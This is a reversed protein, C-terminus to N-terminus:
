GRRLRVFVRAWLPRRRLQAFGLGQQFHQHRCQQPHLTGTARDRRPNRERRCAGSVGAASHDEVARDLLAPVCRRGGAARQGRGRRSIEELLEPDFMDRDLRLNFYMVNDLMSGARNIEHVVRYKDSVAAVGPFTGWKYSQTPRDRIVKLHYSCEDFTFGLAVTGAVGPSRHFRKGSNLQAVIENLIAVKGVHNYGITSYHEGLPRRPMLSFLFVCTQYYLQTTVHLNALTSSFLDHIDATRYLVADAVIGAESNLLAVVFPLHQDNEFVWRGVVFASRDRFFGAEVVDLAIPMPAGPREHLLREVRALIKQADGPLDRFPVSFDPVRIAAGILASDIRGAIPLRRHVAAMSLARLKSAPPFSYAVPKWLGADINRRVSHAFSFAIDAEYRDVIMASFVRDLADWVRAETSLAPFCARMKPGHEAVYRSYLGLREKSIRVSAHPDMSEFAHKARFPYECLQRYFDDFITLLLQAAAMVRDADNASEALRSYAAPVASDSDLPM